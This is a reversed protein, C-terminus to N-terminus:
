VQKSTLYASLSSAIEEPPVNPSTSFIKGNEDQWILIGDIGINEVVYLNDPIDPNFEREQKTVMVVSRDESRAIGTIAIGDALIAGFAGLYEKYEESFQLGLQKEADSIEAVSAPKLPLLQPLAQITKIINPM